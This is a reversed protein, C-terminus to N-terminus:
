GKASPRGGGGTDRSQLSQSTLPSSLLGGPVGPTCLGWAPRAPGGECVNQQGPGGPWPPHAHLVSVHVEPRPLVGPHVGEADAAQHGAPGPRTLAQPAPGPIRAAEEGAARGRSSGRAGQVTTFRDEELGSM